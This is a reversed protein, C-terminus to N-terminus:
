TSEEGEEWVNIFPFISPAFKRLPEYLKSENKAKESLISVDNDIRDFFVLFVSLILVSKLVGLIIGAIRNIIGPILTEAMKSVVKGVIHVLIIIVIFTILLSALHLHKWQVNFNEVLFKSTIDSFEFAGWIGLVLAALSILESIFGKSFGGIAALILLVVLIVDIYNM